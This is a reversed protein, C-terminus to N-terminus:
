KRSTRRKRPRGPKRRNQKFREVESDEIFYDRGYRTAMLNGDKIHRQVTRISIGLVTAIKTTTYLLETVGHSCDMKM